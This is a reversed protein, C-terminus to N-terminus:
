WAVEFTSVDVVGGSQISSAPVALVMEGREAAKAICIACVPKGELRIRTTATKGSNVKPWQCDGATTGFGVCSASETSVTVGLAEFGDPAPLVAATEGTTITIQPMAKDRWCDECWWENHEVGPRVRIGFEVKENCAFCVIGPAPSVTHKTM